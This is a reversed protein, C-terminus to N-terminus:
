TRSAAPAHAPGVVKDSRLSTIEDWTYGAELMVEETHEGHRPAVGRVRVPEGDAVLGSSAVRV